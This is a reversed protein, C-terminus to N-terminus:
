YCGLFTTNCMELVKSGFINQQRVKYALATNRLSHLNVYKIYIQFKFIIQPFWFKLKKMDCTIGYKEYNLGKKYFNKNKYLQNTYSDILITLCLNCSFKHKQIWIIKYNLIWISNFNYAISFSSIRDLRFVVISGLEIDFYTKLLTMEQGTLFNLLRQFQNLNFM